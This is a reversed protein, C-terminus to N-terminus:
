IYIYIYIDCYYQSINNNWIVAKYHLINLIYYILTLLAAEEFIM